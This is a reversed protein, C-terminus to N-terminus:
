ALRAREGGRGNALEDGLTERLGKRQAASESRPARFIKGDHLRSSVAISGGFTSIYVVLQHGYQSRARRSNRELPTAISSISMSDVGPLRASIRWRLPRVLTGCIKM